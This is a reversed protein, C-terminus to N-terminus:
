LAVFRLCLGLQLRPSSSRYLAATFGFFQALAKAAASKATGPLGALFLIPMSMDPCGNKVGEEKVKKVTLFFAVLQPIIEKWGIIHLKDGTTGM